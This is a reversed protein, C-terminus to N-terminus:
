SFEMDSSHFFWSNITEKMVSKIRSDYNKVTTFCQHTVHRLFFNVETLSKKLRGDWIFTNIRSREHNFFM